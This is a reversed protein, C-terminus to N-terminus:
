AALPPPPDLDKSALVETERFLRPRKRELSRSPSPDPFTTDPIRTVQSCEQSYLFNIILIFVNSEPYHTTKDAELSATRVPLSLKPLKFQGESAEIGSLVAACSLYAVLKESTSSYLGVLFVAKPGKADGTSIATSLSPSSRRTSNM